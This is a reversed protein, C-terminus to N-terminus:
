LVTAPRRKMLQLCAPRFDWKEYLRIAQRNSEVVGIVMDRVGIDSLRRDLTRMLDTGIGRGRAFPLVALVEIEAVRGSTQWTDTHRSIDDLIAACGMAYPEDAPGARLLLGQKASSRFTRSYVRWSEDDTVYPALHPAVAQHQHHVSLWVPRLAEVEELTVAEISVGATPQPLTLDRGFCSLILWTPVFGRRRFLDIAACNAPVTGVIGDALGRGAISSDLADLLATGVGQRRKGPRVSLSVVEALLPAAAFAAPWPMRECRWAAYGIDAGSENAILVTGGTKLLHDYIQRRANWSSKTDLYPALEPAISRHLAHVTLWLAELRDLESFKLFDLRM